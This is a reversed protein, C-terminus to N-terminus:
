NVGRSANRVMELHFMIVRNLASRLVLIDQEYHKSPFVPYGSFNHAYHNGFVRIIHFYSIIWSAIGKRQLLVIRAALRKKQLKEQDDLLDIVVEECIRRSLIGLEFTRLSGEMIKRNLEGMQDSSKVELILRVNEQLEKLIAQYYKNAYVDNVDDEDRKLYGNM